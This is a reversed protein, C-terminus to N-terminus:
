GQGMYLGSEAVDEPLEGSFARLSGELVDAEVPSTAYFSVTSGGTSVYNNVDRIRWGGVRTWEKPLGGYDDFWHSYVVAIEVGREEAISRIGATDYGGDVKLRAVEMDGVGWLDTCWLDALYNVAGVDNVAVSQNGYFRALFLGVQYPQEYINSTAHPTKELSDYARGAFPLLMVAMLCAAFVRSVDEPTFERSLRLKLWFRWEGLALAISVMSLAVLYAEYRFFWGVDAFLAHLLIASASLALMINTRTWIRGGYKIRAAILGVSAAFAALLHANGLLNGAFRYAFATLGEASLAPFNAKLMISNPLFFWGQALSFLGYATLPASLSCAVLTSYLFRRRAAFFLAVTLGLFLGEYRVLGLLPCLLLVALRGRFGDSEKSLIGASLYAFCLAVAAHLPHEMGAFALSPLPTAYVVFFLASFVFVRNSEHMSLIIYAALVLLSGSCLALWFPVLENVGFVYYFFSVALTWLPSSTSSSFGHGTIGWVGHLAFNKAIAMHIYADDVAYAFHGENGDVCLNFLFAVTSWFLLMAAVLPWHSGVRKLADM